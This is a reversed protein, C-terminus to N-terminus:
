TAIRCLAGTAGERKRGSAAPLDLADDILRQLLIALQAVLASRIQAGIQLPQPAIGTGITAAKVMECGHVGPGGATASRGDEPLCVTAGAASALEGLAPEPAM